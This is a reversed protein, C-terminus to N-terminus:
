AGEGRLLRPAVRAYDLGSVWTLVVAVLMAWWAVDDDWAGGAALGAVAAAVTQAWTKLKGLDRPAWSSM